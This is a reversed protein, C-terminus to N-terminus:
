TPAHVAAHSDLSANRFYMLFSSVLPRLIQLYMWTSCVEQPRSVLFAASNCVSHFAHRVRCEPGHGKTCQAQGQEVSWAHVDTAGRELCARHVSQQRQEQGVRCSFSMRRCSAGTSCMASAMPLPELDSLIRVRGTRLRQMTTATQQSHTHTHTCSDYRGQMLLRHQAFHAAISARNRIGTEV